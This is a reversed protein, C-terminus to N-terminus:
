AAEDDNGSAVEGTGNKAIGFRACEIHFIDRVAQGIEEITVALRNIKRFFVQLFCVERNSLFPFVKFAVAFGLSRFRHNNLRQNGRMPILVAVVVGAARLIRVPRATLDISTAYGSRHRLHHLIPAMRLLACARM